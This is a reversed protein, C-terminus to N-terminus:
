FPVSFRSSKAKNVIRYIPQSHFNAFYNSVLLQIHIKVFSFGFCLLFLISNSQFFASSCCCFAVVTSLSVVLLPILPKVAHMRPQLNHFNIQNHYYSIVINLISFPLSTFIPTNNFALVLTKLQIMISASPGLKAIPLYLFSVFFKISVFLFTHQFEYYHYSKNRM